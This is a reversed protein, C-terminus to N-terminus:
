HYRDTYAAHADGQSLAVNSVGIRLQHGSADNHYTVFTTGAAGETAVRRWAPGGSAAIRTLSQVVQPSAYYSMWSRDGRGWARVLKDSWAAPGWARPEGHFRASYAAHWGDPERLGVNHVGITLNGGRADDHYTVYVTGAAGEASIRRWHIGGPSAQGFLTRVTAASGYCGAASPDGRGWARVLRDAYEVAALRAASGLRDCTTATITASTATTTASLAAAPAMSGGGLVVPVTVTLAAACGLGKIRRRM